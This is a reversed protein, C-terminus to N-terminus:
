TEFIKTDLVLLQISVQTRVPPLRLSSVFSGEKNIFDFHLVNKTKSDFLVKYPAHSFYQQM